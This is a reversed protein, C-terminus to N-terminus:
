PMESRADPAANTIPGWVIAEQGFTLTLQVPVDSHLALLQSLADCVLEVDAVSLTSKTVINKVANALMRKPIVTSM